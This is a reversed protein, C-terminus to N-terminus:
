ARNINEHELLWKKKDLGGAYGTLSGNAGIVRHCPIIIAIKNKNNAGGVARSAKPNGVIKALQSYSITQGYSITHSAKWVNKQFPTGEIHLPIDFVKRKGDFYQDLQLSLHRIFLSTKTSNESLHQMFETNKISNEPLNQDFFSLKELGKHSTTLEITGLPSNYYTVQKEEDKLYPYLLSNSNSSFYKQITIEWLYLSATTSYPSWHKILQNCYENTPELDLSYLWKVGKRLGLDKYSFVDQRGLCFILFMEATWTGIGKVRTLMDIVQKNNSNKLKEDSITKDLFAQAINKIYQIKSHSLGCERLSVDSVNLINAPSLTKIKNVLKNWVTNAASYALQQFVISQVLACFPDEIVERNVTGVTDILHGILADNLKLHDNAKKSIPFYSM